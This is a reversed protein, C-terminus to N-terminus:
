IISNLKNNFLDLYKTISLHKNFYNTIDEKNSSSLSKLTLIEKAVIEPNDFNTLSGLFAEKFIPILGELAHGIVPIGNAWFEYLKNPACYEYNLSTGKYLIIGLNARNYVPVLEEHPISDIFYANTLNEKLIIEKIEKTTRGLFVFSIDEQKSLKKIVEIFNEFYHQKGGVSGVHLVVFHNDPINKLYESSTITKNQVLGTNPFLLAEEAKLTSREAFYNLRNIEPFVACNIQNGKKLVYKYLISSVKGLLQEEILEYQHYIIKTKSSPHFKKLLFFMGVVQFDNTYIFNKQKSKLAAKLSKIAGSYKKKTIQSVGKQYSDFNEFTAIPTHTVNKIDNYYNNLSSIRIETINISYQKRNIFFDVIFRLSPINTIPNISIIHVQFM